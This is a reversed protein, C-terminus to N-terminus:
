SKESSLASDFATSLVKCITQAQELSNCQYVCISYENQNADTTKLALLSKGMGLGDDYCIMRVILYLPHRHLIDFQDSSAVKIGYKSVYLISEEESPIFPLKGYQQALDIYNILDQPGQLCEFLSSNLNEIAGLYKVRFETCTDFNSNSQGSSRTSETDLSAVTSSRSLGGLSSDVSKSKTSIESGQSSSSSHRKKGKRFM